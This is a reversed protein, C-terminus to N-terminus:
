KGDVADFFNIQSIPANTPKPAPTIGQSELQLLMADVEKELKKSATLNTNDRSKFYQVQRSRMEKVKYMLHQLQEKTDAM